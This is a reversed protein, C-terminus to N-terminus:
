KDQVREWLERVGLADLWREIYARDLEDAQAAIIGLVDRIQQESQGMRAWVLKSLLTDEATAVLVRVGFVTLPMRREFEAREFLGSKLYILDAKWGTSIDIVNFQGKRGFEERAVNADVYVDQEALLALLRGLTVPTPDILLDIDRTSRSVGHASSAMSGVLMHPVNAQDISTILRSLFDGAEGAPGSM